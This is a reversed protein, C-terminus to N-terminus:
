ADVAASTTGLRTRKRLGVRALECRRRSHREDIVGTWQGYRPLRRLLLAPMRLSAALAFPAADIDALDQARKTFGQGDPWGRARRRM